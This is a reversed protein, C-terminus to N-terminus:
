PLAPPTLTSPPLGLALDLCQMAQGAAGKGLNDIAAVVAVTEGDQAVSLDCFSTGRVFRLEPSSARLRIHLHQAAFDAYIAKADTGAEVSIMLTALIGRDLPASIPVFDLKPAQGLQSWFGLVEPVHQHELVKYAKLNAFRTPHHTATSARAGSGTSGTAAVVRAPGRTVGAAILPAGALAIATAFCGPVAIRRAGVLSEASYEALGYVWGNAHRHDRSCDVVLPARELAAVLPAAAGHPTALVVADLASLADGDFPSVVCDTLGELAPHVEALRKGAASLSTAVALELSPHALVRRIVEAGVFGTAGVVGVRIM